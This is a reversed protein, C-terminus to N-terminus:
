RSRQELSASGAALRQDRRGLRGMHGRRRREPDLDAVSRQRGRGARLAAHAAAACGPRDCGRDALRELPASGAVRSAATCLAQGPATPSAIARSADGTESRSPTTVTAQREEVQAWSSSKSPPCIRALILRFRGSPLARSPRRKM